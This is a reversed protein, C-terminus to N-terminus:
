FSGQFFNLFEGFFQISRGGVLEYADFKKPFDRVAMSLIILDYHSVVKLLYVFLIGMTNGWVILVVIPRNELNTESHSM